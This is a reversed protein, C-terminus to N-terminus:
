TISLEPFKFDGLDSKVGRAFLPDTEYAIMSYEIDDWYPMFGFEIRKVNTFPLNDVLQKFTIDELSFVGTVNLVDNDQTAIVMTNIDELEYIHEKLYGLYIHFMNINQTNLCDLKNSYNIRKYVYDWVKQDNHALKKIPITNNINCDCIPLKEYVQKFGFRPYFDVVTENASLYMPTGEYKEIIHDMLKRSLGQGRYEEKTAVAGVSLAEHKKGNLIIKTKYVCINSVIEEGDMYAYSEYNSDWLDLNYWFEFDLFINKLLKNLKTQYQKDDKNNFVFEM